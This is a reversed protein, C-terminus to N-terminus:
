PSRVDVRTRLEAARESAARQLNNAKEQYRSGEAEDRMSQANVTVNLLAAKVAAEALLAAASLDSLAHKTARDVVTELLVLVKNATSAIELPVDAARRLAIDLAERRNAIEAESTKPMAVAARYEGYAAEDAAALGLLGVRLRAARAVASRLLEPNAPAARGNLTLHIVMETLGAALSAVVAAVSGGGPTPAGSSVAAAYQEVTLRTSQINDPLKAASM